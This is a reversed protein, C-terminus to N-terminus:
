PEAIFGNAVGNKLLIHPQLRTAAFSPNYTYAINKHSQWIGMGKLLM